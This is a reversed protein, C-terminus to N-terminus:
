RVGPTEKKVSSNTANVISPTDTIAYDDPVEITVRAAGRDAVSAVYSTTPMVIEAIVGSVDNIASLGPPVTLTEEM